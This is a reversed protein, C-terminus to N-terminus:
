ERRRRQGSWDPGPADERWRDIKPRLAGHPNNTVAARRYLATTEEYFRDPQSCRARVDLALGNGSFYDDVGAIYGFFVVAYGCTACFWEAGNWIIHPQQRDACHCTAHRFRSDAGRPWLCLTVESNPVMAEDVRGRM